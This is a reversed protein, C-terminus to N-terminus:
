RPLCSSKPKILLQAVPCRMHATQTWCERLNPCASVIRSTPGSIGSRPDFVEVTGTTQAVKPIKEARDLHNGTAVPSWPRFRTIDSHDPSLAVILPTAAYRSVEGLIELHLFGSSFNEGRNKPILVADKENIIKWLAL